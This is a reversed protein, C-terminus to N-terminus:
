PKLDDDGTGAGGSDSAHLEHLARFERILNGLNDGAGPNNNKLQDFVMTAAKSDGNAAKKLHQKVIVELMSVKRRKGNSVFSVRRNLERSLIDLLTPVKKPRGKPNGSQGPRFQTRQPPKKYGVSYTEHKKKAM